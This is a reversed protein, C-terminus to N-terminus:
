VRYLLNKACCHQATSLQASCHQSTSFKRKIMFEINEFRLTPCSHYVWSLMILLQKFEYAPDDIPVKSQLIDGFQESEDHSVKSEKGLMFLIKVKEPVNKGWTKRVNNREQKSM